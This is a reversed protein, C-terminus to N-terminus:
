LERVRRKIGDLISSAKEAGEDIEERIEAMLEDIRGELAEVDDQPSGGGRLEEISTRIEDTLDAITGKGKEIEEGLEAELDDIRHEIEELLDDREPESAM